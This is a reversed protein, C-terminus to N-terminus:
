VSKWECVFPAGLFIAFTFLGLYYVANVLLAAPITKETLVAMGPLRNVLAYFKIFSASLETKTLKHYIFGFTFIFPAQGLSPLGPKCERAFVNVFESCRVGAALVIAIKALLGCATFRTLALM